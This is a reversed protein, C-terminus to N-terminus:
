CPYRRRYQIMLEDVVFILTTFLLGKAILRKTPSEIEKLLPDLLSSAFVVFLFFTVVPITVYFVVRECYRKGYSVLDDNDM